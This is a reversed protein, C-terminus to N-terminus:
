FQVPLGFPVGFPTSLVWWLRSSPGNSNRSAHAQVITLCCYSRELHRETQNIKFKGTFLRKLTAYGTTSIGLYNRYLDNIKIKM